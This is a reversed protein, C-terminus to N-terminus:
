NFMKEPSLLNVLDMGLSEALLEMEDISVNAVGREIDNLYSDSMRAQSALDIQSINRLRRSIRLNKAFLERATLNFYENDM